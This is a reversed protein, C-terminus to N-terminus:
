KRECTVHATISIIIIIIIFTNNTNYINQITFGHLQFKGIDLFRIIDPRHIHIHTYTHTHTHTHIYTHTQLHPNLTYLRYM